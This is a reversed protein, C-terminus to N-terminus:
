RRDRPDADLKARHRSDLEQQVTVDRTALRALWGALFGIKYYVSEGEILALIKDVNEKLNARM